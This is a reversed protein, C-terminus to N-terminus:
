WQLAARCWGTLVDDPPLPAVTTNARLGVDLFRQLPVLVDETPGSYGCTVNASKGNVNYIRNSHINPLRRARSELM